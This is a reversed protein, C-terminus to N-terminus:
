KQVPNLLDNKFARFSMRVSWKCFGLRITKASLDDHFYVGQFKKYFYFRAVMVNTELLLNSFM